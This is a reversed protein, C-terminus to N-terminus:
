GGSLSPGAGSSEHWSSSLTVGRVCASELLCPTPVRQRPHPHGESVRSCWTSCISHLAPHSSSHIHVYGKLVGCSDELLETGGVAASAISMIVFICALVGVVAPVATYRSWQTGRLNAPTTPAWAPQQAFPLQDFQKKLLLPDPLTCM